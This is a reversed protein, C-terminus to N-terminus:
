EPVISGLKRDLLVECVVLPLRYVRGKELKPIGYQEVLDIRGVRPAPDVEAFMTFKHVSRPDRKKVPLGHIPAETVTQVEGIFEEGTGPEEGGISAESASVEESTLGRATEEAEMGETTEAALQEDDVVVRPQKKTSKVKM